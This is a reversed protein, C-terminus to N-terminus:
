MEDRRGIVNQPSQMVRGSRTRHVLILNAKAESSASGAGTHLREEVRRPRDVEIAEMLRGLGLVVM